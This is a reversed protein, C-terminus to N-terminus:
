YFWRLPKVIFGLYNDFQPHIGHKFGVEYLPCLEEPYPYLHYKKLRWTFGNIFLLIIVSFTCAYILLQPIAFSFILPLFLFVAFDVVSSLNYLYLNRPRTQLLMYFIQAILLSGVFASVLKWFWHLDLSYFIGAFVVIKLIISAIHVGKAWKSRPIYVHEEVVDFNAISLGIIGRYAKTHPDSGYYGVYDVENSAPRGSSFFCQENKM